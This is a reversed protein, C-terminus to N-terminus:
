AVVEETENAIVEVETIEETTEEAMTETEETELALEEYEEEVEEIDQADEMEGETEAEAQMEEVEEDTVIELEVTQDGIQMEVTAPKDETFDGFYEINAQERLVAIYNEVGERQLGELLVKEIAATADELSLYGPGQEDVKYIIHYGFSTEVLESIEGVGLEFAAEEFPRVMMGRTFYGLDGANVAASPDDSFEAALTAFDEGNLARQRVEEAKAMVEEKNEETTAFLIHSARVRSRNDFFDEKNQNYYEEVDEPSVEIKNIVEQTILRDIVLSLEYFETLEELSSNQQALIQLFESRTNGSKEIAEEILQDMESKPIRIGQKRAEEVLVEQSIIQDLVLKKTFMPRYLPPVKAYEANVESLYIANGNVRAVVEEGSLIPTIRDANLVGLLIAIVAIISVITVVNGGSKRPKAVHSTSIHKKKIPIRKIEKLSM